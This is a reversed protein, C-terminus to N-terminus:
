FDGKADKADPPRPPQVAQPTKGHKALLADIQQGCFQAMTAPVKGKLEEMAALAEADAPAPLQNALNILPWPSDHVEVAHWRKAVVALGKWLQAAADKPAAAAVDGDLKFELSAKVFQNPVAVNALGQLLQAQQDAKDKKDNAVCLAILAKWGAEADASMVALILSNYNYHLIALRTNLAALAVDLMKPEKLLAMALIAEDQQSLTQLYTQYAKQQAQAEKPNTKWLEQPPPSVPPIEDQAMKRLKALAKGDGLKARTALGWLEIRARLDSQMISDLAAQREALVTLTELAAGTVGADKLGQITLETMKWDKTRMGESLSGELYSIQKELTDSAPKADEAKVQPSLSLGLALLLFTLNTFIHRM